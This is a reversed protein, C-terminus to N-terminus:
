LIHIIKVNDDLLSLFGFSFVAHSTINGLIGLVLRELLAKYGAMGAEVYSM